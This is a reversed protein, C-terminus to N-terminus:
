KLVITERPTTLNFDKQSDTLGCQNYGNKENADEGASFILLSPPPLFLPM